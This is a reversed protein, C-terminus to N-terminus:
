IARAKIMRSGLIISTTDFQLEYKKHHLQKMKPEVLNQKKVKPSFPGNKLKLFFDMLFPRLFYVGPVIM